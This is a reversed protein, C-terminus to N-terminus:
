WHRGEGPPGIMIDRLDQETIAVEHVQDTHIERDSERGEHDFAIEYIVLTTTWKWQAMDEVVERASDECDPCDDNSKDPYAPCPEFDTTYVNGLSWLHATPPWELDIWQGPELEYTDIARELVAKKGAETWHVKPALAVEEIPDVGEYNGPNGVREPSDM